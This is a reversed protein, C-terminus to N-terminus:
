APALPANLMWRHGYPDRIGAFRANWFTDDPPMISTCGAALAQEYLADVEGPTKFHLVIAVPPPNAETPAKVPASNQAFEPFEDALMVYAGNVEIEAHMLRKGDEAAMRTVEKAGLAKAYFDIAGSADRVTLYPNLRYDEAMASKRERAM